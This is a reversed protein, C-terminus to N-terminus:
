ARSVVSTGGWGTDKAQVADARGAGLGFILTILIGVVLGLVFAIATHSM